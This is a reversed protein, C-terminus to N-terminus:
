QLASIAVDVRRDAGVVVIVGGSAEPLRNERQQPRDVGPRSSDGRNGGVELGRRQSEVLGPSLPEGLANGQDDV